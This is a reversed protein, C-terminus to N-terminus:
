ELLPESLLAVLAVVAPLSESGLRRDGSELSVDPLDALVVGSVGPDGLNVDLAEEHAYVDFHEPSKQLGEDLFAVLAVVDVGKKIQCLHGRPVSRLEVADPLAGQFKPLHQRRM